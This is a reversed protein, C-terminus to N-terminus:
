RATTVPQPNTTPSQHHPSVTVSADETAPGPSHKTGAPREHAPM